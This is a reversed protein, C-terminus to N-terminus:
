GFTNSVTVSCKYAEVNRANVLPTFLLGVAM